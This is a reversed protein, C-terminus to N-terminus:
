ASIVGYAGVGTLPREAIRFRVGVGAEPRTAAPRQLTRSAVGGRGRRQPLRGPRAALSRRPRVHRDVRLGGRRSQRDARRGLLDGAPVGAGRVRLGPGGRSRPRGPHGRRGPVGLPLAHDGRSSPRRAPGQRARDLARPPRRRGHVAPDVHQLRGSRADVCVPRGDWVAVHVTEGYRGVLARLEPAVLRLLDSTEVLVANLAVIRWGLRYRGSGVRQLLGGVCLSVLLEHAQSKAIQLEQAVATAGWEPADVSYLDLVRAARGLTSLMGTGGGICSWGGELPGRLSYTLALMRSTLGFKAGCTRLRSAGHARPAPGGRHAVHGLHGADRLLGHRTDDVRAPVHAAEGALPHQRRHPLEAVPRVGGRLRQDGAARLRQADDADVRDREPRDGDQAPELAGRVLVPVEHADGPDAREVASGHQLRELAQLALADLPDQEVGACSPIVCSSSRRRISTGSTATSSVSSAPTGTTASSWTAPAAAAM